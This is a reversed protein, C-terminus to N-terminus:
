KEGKIIIKYRNELADIGGELYKASLDNEEIKEIPNREIYPEPSSLNAIIVKEPKILIGINANHTVIFIQNKTKSKILDVINKNITENDLNDEPQDLFLDDNISREFKYKIGYISRQGLSMTEYDIGDAYVKVYEKIEKALTRKLKDDDFIKFEKKEKQNETIWKSIDNPAKPTHLVNKLLKIITDEGILIKEDIKYSLLHKNDINDSFKIEVPKKLLYNFDKKLSIIKKAFDKFYEKAENEFAKLGQSQFDKQKIENVINNYSKEFFVISRNIRQIVNIRSNIIKKFEEIEEIIKSVKSTFKNKFEDDNHITFSSIRPMYSKYKNLDDTVDSFIKKLFLIEEEIRQKMIKPDYNLKSIINLEADIKKLIFTNSWNIKNNENSNVINKVQMYFSHIKNIFPEIAEKSSEIIKKAHELKGDEIESSSNLNKKINDDQYIVDNRNKFDNEKESTKKKSIQNSLIEEGNFKIAKIFELNFSKLADIVNQSIYGKKITAVLDFLTSKGGGKPGIIVNLHNSFNIKITGKESDLSDTKKLIIEKIM